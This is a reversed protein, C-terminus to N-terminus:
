SQKVRWLASDKTALHELAGGPTFVLSGIADYEPGVMVGDLVVRCKKGKWASYAMHKGDPSFVPRDEAIRDWQPAAQGDVVMLWRPGKRALYAVHKGDPSFVVSLM